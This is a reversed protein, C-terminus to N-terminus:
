PSIVSSKEDFRYPTINLPRHCYLKFAHVMKYVRRFYHNKESIEQANENAILQFLRMVSRQDFEPVQYKKLKGCKEVYIEGPKNLLIKSVDSDDLWPQIPALLGSSDPAYSGM